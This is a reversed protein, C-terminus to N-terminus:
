FPLMDDKRVLDDVLEIATDAESRSVSGSYRAKEHIDGVQQVRADIGRSRLAALYSQATESDNRERYKRALHRELREFARVADATPSETRPQWRLQFAEYGKKLLGFRYMGLGIGAASALVTLRDRDTEPIPLSGGFQNEGTQSGNPSSRSDTTESPSSTSIGAESSGAVLEDQNPAPPNRSRADDSVPQSQNATPTQSQNTTNTGTEASSDASVPTTPQTENTDVSSENAERAQGLRSQEADRRPGTPTPDFPVWGTEPFYVDVWAHSDYGRVVWRDDAVRQGPTYGVAFRTPIGLTRLMMVMATAYYVCYGRDMEFIFADAINGNPRSVELSYTKNNKLWQQLVSAADYPNNANATLAGAKRRVRSPTSDPTQLYRERVEEPYETSANRLQEPTWDPVASTVTYEDGKSFSQTPQLDGSSTVQVAVDPPETLRIPKWAAPMTQITAEARFQQENTTTEGPPKSLSESFSAADGSRVWGGGTYRDYAGAHWFGAREATVTFRTEPSLSISGLISINQDTRILSGEVSSSQSGSGSLDASRGAATGNGPVINALRSIVIAATLVLGVDLIHSWSANSEDLIGFGLLGLASTMGILTTTSGADGTLTFFGLMLGGVWAGMAYRRRLSLHWTLFVPAPTITLAWLDARLIRIISMGTFLRLVDAGLKDLSTLATQLYIDPIATLYVGMGGIFVFGALIVAMRASVVRASGTALVIAGLVIVPLLQVGGIVDAIHYLVSMFSAILVLAALLALGRAPELGFKNTERGIHSWNLPRKGTSQQDSM